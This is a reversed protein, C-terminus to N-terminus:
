LDLGKQDSGSGSGSFKLRIQIRDTSQSHLTTYVLFFYKLFLAKVCKWTFKEMKEPLFIMMWIDSSQHSFILHYILNKTLALLIRIRIRIRNKLIQNAPDPDPRFHVTDAVRDSVSCKKSLKYKKKNLRVLFRHGHSLPEDEGHPFDELLCLLLDVEPVTGIYTGKTGVYVIRIKGLM